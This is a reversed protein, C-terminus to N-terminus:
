SIHASMCYFILNSYLSDFNNLEFLWMTLKLWWGSLTLVLSRLVWRVPSYIPWLSHKLKPFFSIEQHVSFQRSYRHTPPSSTPVCTKNTNGTCSFINPPYCCDECSEGRGALMIGTNCKTLEAEASACHHCTNLYEL